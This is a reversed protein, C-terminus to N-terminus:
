RQVYEKEDIGAFSSALTVVENEQWRVISITGDRTVKSDIAGRGEKKLNKESKLVCGALQNSKLM